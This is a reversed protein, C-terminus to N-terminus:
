QRAAILRKIRAVIMEQFPELRWRQQYSQRAAQILRDRLDGDTLVRVAARAIAITDGPPFLLGNHCDEIVEPIGGADSAIVPVGASFAEAIVRGMSERHSPVVLLDLGDFAETPTPATGKLEVRGPPLKAGLRRATEAYREDQVSGVFRFRAEPCSRLIEPAARLLDCQGKDPHIRAIVGIVSGARVGSTALEVSPVGTYIVEALKRVLSGKRFPALCARSCAIIAPRGIRAPVATAARDRASQLELSLHWLLPLGARGAALATSLFLRPGNCYILRAGADRALQTIRAALALQQAAYRLLDAATKRGESLAALPLAEWAVGRAELETTLPGRGPLAAVVRFHQQLAPLLDLVTRQAGGLESFQDTLLICPRAM